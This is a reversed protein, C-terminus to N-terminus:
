SCSFLPPARLPPRWREHRTSSRPVTNRPAITDTPSLVMLLILGLAMLYLLLKSVATGFKVISVDKDGAHDPDGPHANEQHAAADDIHIVDGHHHGPQGHIHTGEPPGAYGEADVHMHLGSLQVAVLSLCAALMILTPPRRM